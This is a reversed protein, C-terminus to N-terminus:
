AQRRGPCKGPDVQLCPRRSSCTATGRPQCLAAFCPEFCPDVPEFLPMGGLGALRTLSPNILVSLSGGVGAVLESAAGVDMKHAM